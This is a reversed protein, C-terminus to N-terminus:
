CQQSQRTSSGTRPPFAGRQPTRHPLPRFTAPNLAELYATKGSSNQGVIVTCQEGFEIEGSDRHSKYNKLRAFALKV